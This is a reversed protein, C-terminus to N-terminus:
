DAWSGDPNQYGGLLGHSCYGMLRQIREPYQEAIKRPVNLYQNEEQRLWGLAYTNILGSRPATSHNAGGGHLTSGLYFLVSGKPMLALVTKREDIHPITVKQQHSGPVVRTAGNNEDFDHLSWMASLQWEVGPIRIPYIVDDTHLPQDEEGPHIEIATLSGIRYNVCHPLLIADAVELVRSHGVLEASTRSLALISNLRLTKYGNFRNQDFKGLTDFPERLDTQVQDVIEPAVQEKVVVAGDRQLAAVVKHTEVNRDYFEIPV